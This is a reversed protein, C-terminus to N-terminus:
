EFPTHDELIIFDKNIEGVRSMYIQFYLGLPTYSSFKYYNGAYTNNWIGRAFTTCNYLLTWRNHNRLYVELYELDEQYFDSTVSINETYNSNNGELNVWIGRVGMSPNSTTGFSIGTNPTVTYNLVKIDKDTTNKIYVWSHGTIRSPTPLGAPSSYLSITGVKTSEITASSSGYTSLFQIEPILAVSITYVCWLLVIFFINKLQFIKKMLLM